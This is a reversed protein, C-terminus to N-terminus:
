AAERSHPAAKTTRATMAVRYGLFGTFTVPALGAEAALGTMEARTYARRVSLPADHRTLRNRTLLRSLLWAGLWGLWHRVLDNVIVGRRAVRRLERLMLVADAADLHHLALSCMAVDFSEDLFPLRRADAVALTLGALNCAPALRLMADSIDTAVVQAQLDHRRAWAVVAAPIDASGTAVDLITLGAGPALDRTLRDLAHLTLWRGGLWRNVRRLDALNGALEAPELGPADMLEPEATRTPQLTWPAALVSRM